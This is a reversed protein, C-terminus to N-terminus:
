VGLVQRDIRAEVAWHAVVAVSGCLFGLGVLLFGEALGPALIKLDAEIPINAIGLSMNFGGYCAGLLGIIPGGFRLGSLFASGGSLRRGSSLKIAAVVPAALCALVLAAMILQPILAGNEIVNMVGIHTPASLSNEPM